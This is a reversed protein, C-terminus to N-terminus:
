EFTPAAASSRAIQVNNNDRDFLTYYRRQLPPPPPCPRTTLFQRLPPLRLSLPPHRCDFPM